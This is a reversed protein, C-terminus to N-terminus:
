ADSGRPDDAAAERLRAAYERLRDARLDLANALARTARVSPPRRNAYVDFTDPSFSSEEALGGISTTAYRLANRFLTTVTRTTMYPFYRIRIIAALAAVVARAEM